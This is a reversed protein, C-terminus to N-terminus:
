HWYDMRVAVFINTGQIRNKRWEFDAGVIMSVRFGITLRIIIKPRRDDM